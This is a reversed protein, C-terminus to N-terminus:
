RAHVAGERCADGDGEVVAPGALAGVTTSSWPRDDLRALYISTTACMAPAGPEVSRTTFM